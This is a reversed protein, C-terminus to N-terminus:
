KHPAFELLKEINTIAASRRKVSEERGYGKGSYKLLFELKVSQDDDYGYYNRWAQDFKDRRKGELFPRFDFVALRHKGFAAQLLDCTDIYNKTLATDLALLEEKFAARFKIIAEREAAVQSLSLAFRYTIWAGMLAGIITGAVGIIAIEYAGLQM